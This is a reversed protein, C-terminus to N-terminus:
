KVLQLDILFCAALLVAKIKVDLDPPFKIDYNNSDSFLERFVGSWLKTIRGIKSGDVALIKYHVECNCFSCCQIYCPGSIKLVTKGYENIVHFLPRIPSWRQRVSGLTEGKPMSVEISQLCCPIWCSSCSLPRRMHVVEKKTHDVIKFRAPRASRWCQRTLCDTTEKAGYLIQGKINKISYEKRTEYTTFVGCCSLSQEVSLHNVNYLSELGSPVSAPAMPEPPATAPLVDVNSPSPYM